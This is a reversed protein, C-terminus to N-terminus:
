LNKKKIPDTPFRIEYSEKIYKAFLINKELKTSIGERRIEEKPPFQEEIRGDLLKELNLISNM